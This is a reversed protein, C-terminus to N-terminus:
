QRPAHHPGVRGPYAWLGYLPREHRQVWTTSPPFSSRSPASRHSWFLSRNTSITPLPDIGAETLLSAEVTVGSASIAWSPKKRRLSIIPIWKFAAGSLIVGVCETNSASLLLAFPKGVNDMMVSPGYGSRLSGMSDIYWVGSVKAGNLLLLQSSHSHETFSAFVDADVVRTKSYPRSLVMM